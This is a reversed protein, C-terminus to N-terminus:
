VPDKMTIKIVPFAVLNEINFCGVDMRKWDVEITKVKDWPIMPSAFLDKAVDKFGEKVSKM